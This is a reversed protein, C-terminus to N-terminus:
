GTEIRHPVHAPKAGRVAAEVARLDADRPVRVRLLPARSGPPIGYPRPSWQTGGSDIVEAEVEALVRVAAIVGRVTGRWRLLEPTHRLVRRVHEPPWRDDVAVGLWGALWGLFDAPTLDPDLYADINDITALAPALVQDFAALLDGLAGAELLVGPVGRALPFPTPLDAAQRM